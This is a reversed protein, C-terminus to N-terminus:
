QKWIEYDNPLIWCIKFVEITEERTSHTYSQIVEEIEEM